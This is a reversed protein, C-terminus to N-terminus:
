FTLASDANMIVTGNVFPTVQASLTNLWLKFLYSLFSTGYACVVTIIKM